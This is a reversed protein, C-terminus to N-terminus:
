GGKLNQSMRQTSRNQYGMFTTMWSQLMADWVQPAKERFDKETMIKVDSASQPGAVGGAAPDGAVPSAGPIVSESPVM